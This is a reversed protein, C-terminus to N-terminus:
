IFSLLHLPKFIIITCAMASVFNSCLLSKERFCILRASYSRRVLTDRAFSCRNFESPNTKLAWPKSLRFAGCVMSVPQVAM